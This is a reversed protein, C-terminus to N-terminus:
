SGLVYCAKFSEPAAQSRQKASLYGMIQMSM